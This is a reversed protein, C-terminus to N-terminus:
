RRLNREWAQKSDLVDHLVGYLLMRQAKDMKKTATTAGTSSGSVGSRNSYMSKSRKMPQRQQPNGGQNGNTDYYDKSPSSNVINEHLNRYDGYYSPNLSYGRQPSQNHQQQQQQHQHQQEGSQQGNQQFGYDMSPDGGGRQQQYTYNGNVNGHSEDYSATNSPYPPHYADYSQSRSKYFDQYQHNNEGGSHQFQQPQQQQQQFSSSIEPNQNQDEGSRFDNGNFHSSTFRSAAQKQYNAFQQQQERLMQEYYEYEPDKSATFPIGSSPSSSQRPVSPFNGSAVSQQHHQQHSQFPQHTSNNHLSFASADPNYGGAGAGASSLHSFDQSGNFHSSNNVITSNLHHDFSSSAFSPPASSRRYTSSNVPQHNLSSAMPMSGHERNKHKEIEHREKIM